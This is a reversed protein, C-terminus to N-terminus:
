LPAHVTISKMSACSFDQKINEEFNTIIIFYLLNNCTFEIKITPNLMETVRVVAVEMVVQPTSSAFLQFSALLLPHLFMSSMPTRDQLKYLSTFTGPQSALQMVFSVSVKWDIITYFIKNTIILFRNSILTDLKSFIEFTLKNLNSHSIFVGGKLRAWKLLTSTIKCYLNFVCIKTKM